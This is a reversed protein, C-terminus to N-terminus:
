NQKEKVIKKRSLYIMVLPIVFCALLAGAGDVALDLMDTVRGPVYLQHLEDSIGYFLSVIFATFLTFPHPKQSVSGTIAVILLTSLIFYELFHALIPLYEPGGPLSKLPISSGWFILVMWIIVAAWQLFSKKM